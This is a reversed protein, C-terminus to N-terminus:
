PSAALQRALWKRSEVAKKQKRKSELPPPVRWSPRVHVYILISVQFLDKQTEFRVNTEKWTNPTVQDTEDSVDQVTEDAGHDDNDM